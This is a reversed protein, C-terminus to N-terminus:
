LPVGSYLHELTKRQKWKNHYMVNCTSMSLMETFNKWLTGVGYHSFPIVPTKRLIKIFPTM